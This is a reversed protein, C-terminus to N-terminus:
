FGEECPSPRLLKPESLSTTSPVGEWTERLVVPRTRSPPHVWQHRLRPKFPSVSLHPFKYVQSPYTFLSTFICQGTMNFFPITPLTLVKGWNDKVLNILQEERVLKCLIRCPTSTQLTKTIKLVLGTLLRVRKHTSYVM